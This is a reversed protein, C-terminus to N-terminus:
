DIIKAVTYFDNKHIPSSKILIKKNQTNVSNDNRTLLLIQNTSIMSRLNLTNVNKITDFIKIIKSLTKCYMKLEYDLINICSVSAIKKINIKNVLM